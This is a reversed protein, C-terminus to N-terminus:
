RRRHLRRRQKKEEDDCSKYIVFFFGAGIFDSQGLKAMMQAWAWQKGLHMLEIM